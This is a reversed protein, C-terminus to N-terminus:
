HTALSIFQERSNTGGAMSPLPTARSPRPSVFQWSHMAGSKVLCSTPDQAFAHLPRQDPATSFSGTALKQPGSESSGQRSPAHLPWGVGVITM